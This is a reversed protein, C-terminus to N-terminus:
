YDIKVGIHVSKVSPFLSKVALSEPDLVKIHDFTLLNMGRCYIKIQNLNASGFMKKPLKYYLECHRLKLYSADEVFTSNVNYNNNNNNNTLRPYKANPNSPTWRNDYYYKSLNGNGVLPMFMNNNLMYASYNGVGQFLANLGLGKYEFGLNFSYYIEPMETSYGIPRRDYVDIIDDNGYINAFKLDGPKTPYLTQKPSNAIDEENQFIGITQYGIIQGYSKGITLIDPNPNYVEGNEIVKNRNFTFNGGLTLNLNGVKKDYLAGIEFGKNDIAGSNVYPLYSNMDNNPFLGAIGSTTGFMNVIIDRGKNMFADMTLSLSNFFNMDVGVNFKYTKEYTLNESALRLQGLGGVGTFGSGFIAGPKSGYYQNDLSYTGNPMEDSGAIGVSARIKLLNITNSSKLFGENSSIWAASASPFYGFKNKEPLLNSGHATMSADITYKENYIYQAYFSYRLRNFTRHQGTYSNQSSAVIFMANVQSKGCYNNYDLQGVFNYAKWQEGVYRFASSSTNNGYFETNIIGTPQGLQDFEVANTEYMYNMKQGDVYKGFSDLGIKGTISLGKLLFDLRQSLTLDGLLYRSNGNTYGKSAIEAVPNTTWINSGGYNGSLTRVPFAASPTQYILKM